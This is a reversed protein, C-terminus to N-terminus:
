IGEMHVMRGQHWAIRVLKSSSSCIHSHCPLEVVEKTICVLNSSSSVQGLHTKMRHTARIEEPVLVVKIRCEKDMVMCPAKTEWIRDLAVWELAERVEKDKCEQVEWELAVWEMAEWALVM